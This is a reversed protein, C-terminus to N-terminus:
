AEKVEPVTLGVGEFEEKTGVCIIMVDDVVIQAEFPSWKEDFGQFKVTYPLDKFMQAFAECGLHIQHSDIGYVGVFKDYIKAFQKQLKLLQNLQTKNM